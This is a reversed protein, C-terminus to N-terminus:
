SMCTDIAKGPPVVAAESLLYGGTPLPPTTLKPYDIIIRNNNVVPFLNVGVSHMKAAEPPEILRDFFLQPSPQQDRM